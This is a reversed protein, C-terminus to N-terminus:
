LGRMIRSNMKKIWEINIEDQLCNKCREIKGEHTKLVVGYKICKFNFIETELSDCQICNMIGECIAIHM